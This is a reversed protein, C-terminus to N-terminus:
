CYYIKDPYCGFVFETVYCLWITSPGHWADNDYWGPTAEVDVLRHTLTHCGEFPEDGMCVRVWPGEHSLADLLMDAGLVMELDEKPGEWEPLRVYWRNDEEKYFDFTRIM